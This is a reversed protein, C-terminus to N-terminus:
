PALTSEYDNDTVGTDLDLKQLLALFNAKLTNLENGLGASKGDYRSEVGELRDVEEQTLQAM